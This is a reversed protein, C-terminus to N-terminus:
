KIGFSPILDTLIQKQIPALNIVKASFGRRFPSNPIDTENIWVIQAEFDMEIKRSEVIIKLKVISNIPPIKDSPIFFGQAQVEKRFYNDQLEKPKECKIVFEKNIVLEDSRITDKKFKHDFFNKLNLWIEREGDDLTARKKKQELENFRALLSFVQSTDVDKDKEDVM